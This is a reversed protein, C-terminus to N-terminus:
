HMSIRSRIVPSPFLMQMAGPAIVGLESKM